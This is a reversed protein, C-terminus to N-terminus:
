LGLYFVLIGRADLVYFVTFKSYFPEVCDTVDVRGDVAKVRHLRRLSTMHMMWATDRGTKLGSQFVSARSAKVRLLDSSRSVHMVDDEDERQNQPAVSLGYGAQNQPVFWSVM